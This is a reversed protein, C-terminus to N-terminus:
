RVIPKVVAKGDKIVVTFDIKKGAHKESLQKTTAELKKSLSGLSVEARDNTKAKAELLQRHIEQLRDSSLASRADTASPKEVPATAATPL